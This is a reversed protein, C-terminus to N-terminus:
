GKTIYLLFKERDCRVVKVLDGDAIQIGEQENQANWIEGNVFIKGNGDIFGNLAKGEKGILWEFGTNLPLEKSQILKYIVFLLFGGLGVALPIFYELALRMEPAKSVDIFYILGLILSIIGGIALIGSTVFLEAGILLGGLVILLIGTQTVPLVDSVALALILCIAGFVGPFILGPHYLEAGIGTTAGLWLLAAINPNAFTNVAKQRLSMEYNVKTLKSYDGLTVKNGKITVIKNVSKSLLDDIDTAIFDIVGEKIAEKETLSSSEKVSKEAWAINRGRQDAISKVMASTINEVKHRMDGEIDKGNGQVPHAAGISTGPAMAAIHGAITIFVGASIASGGSPAVYIAVPIDSNFIAQIMEQSSTLMGGPTNIKVVVIKAEEQSAKEISTKLYESTGPLIMMNLDVVAVHEIAYLASVKFVFLFLYLYIFKSLKKYIM